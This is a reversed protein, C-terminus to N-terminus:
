GSLSTESIQRLEPDYLQIVRWAGWAIIYTCTPVLLFIILIVPLVLNFVVIILVLALLLVSWLFHRFVLALATKVLDRLPLDYIVLLIWIYLNAMITLTCILVTIGMFTSFVLNPLGMRPWILLNFGLWGLIVVDLIAICTAKWWHLRIAGFFREFTEHEKGQAWDSFIAFLGATAAPLTVVLLSCGLWLFNALFFTSIREITFLFKDKM